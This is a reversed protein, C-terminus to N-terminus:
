QQCHAGELREADTAGTTAVTGGGFSQCRPLLLLRVVVVVVVLFLVLVVVLVCVPVLVLITQHCKVHIWLNNTM